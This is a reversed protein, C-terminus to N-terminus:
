PRPRRTMPVVTGPGNGTPQEWEPDVEAWIAPWDFDPLHVPLRQGPQDPGHPMDGAIAALGRLEGGTSDGFAARCAEQLTVPGPNFAALTSMILGLLLLDGTVTDDNILTTHQREVRQRLMVPGHLDSM